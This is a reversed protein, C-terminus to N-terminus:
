SFLKAFSGTLSAIDHPGLKKAISGLEGTQLLLEFQKCAQSATLEMFDTPTKVHALRQAYELTTNMNATMLEFAKVRYEDAARSDAPAAEEAIQPHPRAEEDSAPPHAASAIRSNAVALGNMYSLAATMNLKMHELMLFRYDKAVTTAASTMDELQHLLADDEIEVPRPDNTHASVNADGDRHEDLTAPMVDYENDTATSLQTNLQATTAARVVALAPTAAKLEDTMGAEPLAFETLSRRAPRSVGVPKVAQPQDM